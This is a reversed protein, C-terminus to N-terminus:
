SQETMDVHLKDMEKIPLPIFYYDRRQCRFDVIGDQVLYRAQCNNCVFPSDGNLEGKCQPCCFENQHASMTQADSIPDIIKM